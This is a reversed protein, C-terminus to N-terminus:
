MRQAQLQFELACMCVTYCWYQTLCKFRQAWGLVNLYVWFVKQLGQDSVLRMGQCKGWHVWKILLRETWPPQFGLGVLELFCTHTNRLTSALVFPPSLARHGTYHILWPTGYWGSWALRLKAFVLQRQGRLSLSCHSAGGRKGGPDWGPKRGRGGEGGGCWGDAEPPPSPLQKRIGAGGLSQGM